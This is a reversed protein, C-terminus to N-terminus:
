AENQLIFSRSNVDNINITKNSFFINASVNIPKEKTIRKRRFISYPLLVSAYQDVSVCACIYMCSYIINVSKKLM